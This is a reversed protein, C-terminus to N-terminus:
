NEKITVGISVTWEKGAPCKENLDEVLDGNEDQHRIQIRQGATVTITDGGYYTKTSDPIHEELNM